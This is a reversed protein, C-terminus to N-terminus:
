PEGPPRVHSLFCISLPSPGMRLKFSSFPIEQRFTAHTAISSVFVSALTRHISRRTADADRLVRAIPLSGIEAPSRKVSLRHTRTRCESLYRLSAPSRERELCYKLVSASPAYSFEYHDILYNQEDYFPTSRCSICRAM